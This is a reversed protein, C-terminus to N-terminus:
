SYILFSIAKWGTYLITISVVTGKSMSQFGPSPMSTQLQIPDKRCSPLPYEIRRRALLRTFYPSSLHSAESWTSPHEEEFSSHSRALNYQCRYLVGLSLPVVPGEHRHIDHIEM